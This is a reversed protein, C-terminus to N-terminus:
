QVNSEMTGYKRSSLLWARMTKRTVRPHLYLILVLPTTFFLVICSLVVLIITFVIFVAGYFLEFSIGFLTGFLSLVGSIALFWGIFRVIKFALTAWLDDQRSTMPIIKFCCILLITVAVLFGINQLVDLTFLNIGEELIEEPLALYKEIRETTPM